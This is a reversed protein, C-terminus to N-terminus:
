FIARIVCVLGVLVLPLGIVVQGFPDMLLLGGSMLAFGVVGLVMRGLVKMLATAARVPVLLVEKMEM